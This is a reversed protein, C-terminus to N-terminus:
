LTGDFAGDAVYAIGTAPDFALGATEGLNVNMTISTLLMATNPDVTSLVSHGLTASDSTDITFLTGAANFALASFDRTQAATNLPNTAAGTTISVDYINAPNANNGILGASAFALPVSVASLCVAIPLLRGKM